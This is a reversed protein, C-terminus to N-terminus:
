QLYHAAPHMCYWQYQISRFSIILKGVVMKGARVPFDCVVDGGDSIKRYLTPIEPVDRRLLVVSNNLLFNM